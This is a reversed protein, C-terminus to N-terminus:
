FAPIYRVTGSANKFVLWEQVTTHSGAPGVSGLVTAVAGNAAVQSAGVKVNAGDIVVDGRTGTATGTKVWVDGSNGAGADGSSLNAQGSNGAPAAGSFLSLIGGAGSTAGGNGAQVFM